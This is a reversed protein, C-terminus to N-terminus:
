NSQEMVLNIRDDFLKIQQLEGNVRSLFTKHLTSTLQEDAATAALLKLLLTVKRKNIGRSKRLGTIVEQPDATKDYSFQLDSNTAM